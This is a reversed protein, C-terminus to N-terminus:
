DGKREVKQASTFTQEYMHKADRLGLGTAERIVKIAMIKKDADFLEKAEYYQNSTFYVYEDRNPNRVKWYAKEPRYEILESDWVLNLLRQRQAVLEMSSGSPPMYLIKKVSLVPFLYWEGEEIKDFTLAEIAEEAKAMQRHARTVNSVFLILDEVLWKKFKFHMM